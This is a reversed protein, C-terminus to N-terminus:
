EDEPEDMHNYRNYPEKNTLKAIQYRLRRLERLLEATHRFAASEAGNNSSRAKNEYYAILEKLTMIM